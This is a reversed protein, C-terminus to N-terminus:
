RALNRKELDPACCATLTGAGQVGSFSVKQHRLGRGCCDCEVTGIAPFRERRVTTAQLSADQKATPRAGAFSFSARWRSRCFDNEPSLDILGVGAPVPGPVCYSSSVGPKLEALVALSVVDASVPKRPFEMVAWDGFAKLNAMVAVVRAADPGIM